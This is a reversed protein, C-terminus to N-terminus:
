FFEQKEARVIGLLALEESATLQQVETLTRVMELNSRARMPKEYKTGASYGVGPVQWLEYMHSGRDGKTQEVRFELGASSSFTLSGVSHTESCDLFATV